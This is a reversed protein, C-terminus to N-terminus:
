IPIYIMPVELDSYQVSPHVQHELMILRKNSVAFARDNFICYHEHGSEIIYVRGDIAYITTKTVRDFAIFKYFTDHYLMQIRSHYTLTYEKSYRYTQQDDNRIYTANSQLLMLRLYTIDITLPSDPDFAAMRLDRLVPVKRFVKGGRFIWIFSRMYVYLTSNTIYFPNTATILPVLAKPMYTHIDFLDRSSGVNQFTQTDPCYYLISRGDWESRQSMYNSPSKGAIRVPPLNSRYILGNNAVGLFGQDALNIVRM